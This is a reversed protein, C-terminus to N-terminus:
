RTVLEDKRVIRRYLHPGVREFTPRKRVPVDMFVIQPTPTWMKVTPGPKPMSVEVPPQPARETGSARGLSVPQITPQPTDTVTHGLSVPQIVLALFILAHM